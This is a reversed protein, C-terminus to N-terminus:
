KKSKRWKAIEEKVINYYLYPDDKTEENVHKPNTSERVDAIGWFISDCVDDYSGIVAYHRAGLAWKVRRRWEDGNERRWTSPHVGSEPTVFRAYDPVGCSLNRYGWGDSPTPVIPENIQCTGIRFKMLWDKDEPKTEELQKWFDEGPRFITMMPRDDGFGYKRYHPDQAFEEWVLKAKSNWYSMPEHRTNGLMLFWQMDLEEAAKKVNLLMPWHRNRQQDWQAMNTFDIGVINIGTAKIKKMVDLAFDYSRYDCKADWVGNVLFKTGKNKEHCCVMIYTVPVPDIRDVAAVGTTSRDFRVVARRGDYVIRQSIGDPLSVIFDREKAMGPYAGKRAGITLTREGDDWSLPIETFEGKEYGYGDGADDYLTFVGDAGPFVRIEVFPNKVQDVYQVDPGTPVIAGAKAYLPITGLSVKPEIWRGGKERTGDFFNWWDTGSPLYLRRTPAQSYVVPAAMLESGFLFQDAVTWTDKDDKAEAFLPRMWTGGQASVWRATSYLYPMLRYRLRITDLMADYCADGKDGFQWIERPTGTGHSRFVPCFLAYQMWRTTLEAFGPHKCHGGATEHEKMPFFGGIDTNYNPNGTLGFGIGAAIQRRLTDWTCGVDGSWVNAAFRQQGAYASRTMIFVRRDVDAARQREYVGKVTFFPYALCLRRFSGMGTASDFIERTKNYCVPESHDMWWADVGLRRLGDLHRWYIERADESFADYAVVGNGKPWTDFGGKLYLGKAKIERYAETDPGFSQWISLMLKANLDHIARINREPEAFGPTNFRMDNWMNNGGWYQWDQVVCDLPIGRRRHERVVAIDEAWSVYRERSVFYGLTWKPLMPVEGTLFRIQRVVGDSTGGYMFYYDIADATESALSMTGDKEAYELPSSNDWFLGWGKVSQLIPVCDEPNEQYMKKKKGLRSIAEDQWIGLGYVPEDKELRWSQRVEFSGCDPDDPRTRRSLAFDSERLLMEGGVTYFAVKGDGEVKVKLTSTSYTKAGDKAAFSVKVDGPKAIVAFSDRMPKAGDPHKVVRVVDDCFFTLQVDTRAQVSMVSAVFAVLFCLTRMNM